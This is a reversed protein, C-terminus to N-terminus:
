YMGPFFVDDLAAIGNKWEYFQDRLEEVAEEQEETADKYETLFNRSADDDWDRLFEDTLYDSVAEAFRRANDLRYSRSSACRRTDQTLELEPVDMHPLLAAVNKWGELLGSDELGYTAQELYSHCEELEGYKDLHDMGACELSEKWQEIEDKLDVIMTIANDMAYEMSCKVPLDRQGRKKKPAAPTDINFGNEM